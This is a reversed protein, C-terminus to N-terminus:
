LFRGEQFLGRQQLMVKLVMVKLVELVELVQLMTPTKHRDYYVWTRV